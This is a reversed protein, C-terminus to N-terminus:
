YLPGYSWLKFFCYASSYWLVGPMGKTYRCPTHWRSSCKRRTRKATEALSEQRSTCCCSDSCRCIKQIRAPEWFPWGIGGGMYCIGARLLVARQFLAGQTQWSQHCRRAQSTSLMSVIAIFTTSFNLSIADNKFDRNEVKQAGRKFSLKQFVHLEFFAV